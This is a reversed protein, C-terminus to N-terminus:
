VSETQKFAKTIRCALDHCDEEGFTECMRKYLNMWASRVLDVVEEGRGTIQLRILKGESERKVLGKQELLDVFRTITSPTLNLNEGAEKPGIGPNNSIVMLLFGHSPSLGSLAFEEDAMKNIVRVLSNSSFYLCNYFSDKTEQM